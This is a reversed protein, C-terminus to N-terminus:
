DWVAQYIHRTAEGVTYPLVQALRLSCRQAAQEVEAMEAGFFGRVEGGPQLLKKALPLLKAPPMFARSTVCAYTEHPTKIHQEVPMASVNFNSLGLEAGVIVLFTSKRQNSEIATYSAKPNLVALPIVPSGNGSGLDVVRSGKELLGLDILRAGEVILEAVLRDVTTYGTLHATSDYQAVLEIYRALRQRATTGALPVGDRILTQLRQPNLQV